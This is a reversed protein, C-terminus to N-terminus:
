FIHKIHLGEVAKYIRRKNGISYLYFYAGFELYISNIQKISKTSEIFKIKLEESDIREFRYDQKNTGSKLLNNIDVSSPRIYVFVGERKTLLHIFSSNITTAIQEINKTKRFKLKPQTIFKKPKEILPASTQQKKM